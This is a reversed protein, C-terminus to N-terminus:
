HQQPVKRRGVRVRQWNPEEAERGRSGRRTNGEARLQRESEKRVLQRESELRGLQREIELRALQRGSKSRGMARDLSDRDLNTSLRERSQQFSERSKRRQLLLGSVSSQRALPQKTTRLPVKQHPAKVINRPLLPAKPKLSNRPGEKLLQFSQRASPALSFQLVQSEESVSTSPFDDEKPEPRYVNFLSKQGRM